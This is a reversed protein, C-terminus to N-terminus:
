LRACSAVTHACRAAAAAAAGPSIKPGLGGELTIQGSASVLVAPRGLTLVPKGVLEISSSRNRASSRRASTPPFVLKEGIDGSTLKRVFLRM